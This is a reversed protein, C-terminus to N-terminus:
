VAVQKYVPRTLSIILTALFLAIHIILSGSLNEWSNHYRIDSILDGTFSDGGSNAYVVFVNVLVLEVTFAVIFFLPRNLRVKSSIVTFILSQVLTALLGFIIIFWFLYSFTEMTLDTFLKYGTLLIVAFILHLLLFTVIHRRFLTTM